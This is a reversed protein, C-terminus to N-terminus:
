SNDVIKIFEFEDVNCVGYINMSVGVMRKILIIKHQNDLRLQVTSCVLKLKGMMEWMKRPIVNVNSGLDLIVNDMDYEGIQVSLKFEKNTRKKHLFQNV